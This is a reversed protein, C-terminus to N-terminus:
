VHRLSSENRASRLKRERPNATVATYNFPIQRGFITFYKTEHLLLVKTPMDPQEKWNPRVDRAQRRVQQVRIPRHVTSLGCRHAKPIKDLGSLWFFYHRGWWGVARAVRFRTFISLAYRTLCLGGGESHKVCHLLWYAFIYLRRYVTNNNVSSPQGSQAFDDPSKRLPNRGSTHTASTRRRIEKM